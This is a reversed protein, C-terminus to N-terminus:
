DFAKEIANPYSVGSKNANYTQRNENSLEKQINEKTKEAKSDLKKDLLAKYKEVGEVSKIGLEEIDTLEVGLDLAKLKVDLKTEREIAKAERTTLDDEKLRLKEEAEEKERAATQEATETQKLLEKQATSLEGIKRDLGANDAKLKEVLKQTNEYEAKYDIEQSEVQEETTVQTEVQEVSEGTEEAM